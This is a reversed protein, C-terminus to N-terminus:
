YKYNSIMFPTLSLCIFGQLFSFQFVIKKIKSYERKMINQKAIDCVSLTMSVIVLTFIVYGIFGIFNM